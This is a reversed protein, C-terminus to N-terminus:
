IYTEVECPQLMAYGCTGRFDNGAELNECLDHSIINPQAYAHSHSVDSRCVRSYTSAGAISDCHPLRMLAFRNEWSAHAQRTAQIRRLAMM